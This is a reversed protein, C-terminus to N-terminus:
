SAAYAALDAAFGPMVADLRRVKETISATNSALPVGGNGVTALGSCGRSVLSGRGRPPPIPRRTPASMVLDLAPGAGSHRRYDDKLDSRWQHIEVGFKEKARAIIRRATAMIAFNVFTIGTNALHRGLHRHALFLAGAVPDDAHAGASASRRGPLAAMKEKYV